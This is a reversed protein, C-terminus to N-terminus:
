DEKWEKKAEAELLKWFAGLDMGSAQYLRVLDGPSIKKSKRELLLYAQISKKKVRKHMEWPNIGLKERIKKVLEMGRM